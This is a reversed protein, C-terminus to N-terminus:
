KMNELQKFPDANKSGPSSLQFQSFSTNGVFNSNPPVNQFAKLEFMQRRLVEIDYEMKQAALQMNEKERLVNDLDASIRVLEDGQLRSTLQVSDREKTLNERETTLAFIEAKLSTITEEQSEVKERLSSTGTGSSREPSNAPYLLSCQTTLEFNSERLLLVETQSSEVLEMLGTVKSTCSDVLKKDEDHQKQLSEVEAQLREILAADHEAVTKAVARERNFRDELAAITENPQSQLLKQYEIAENDRLLQLQLVEAELEQIKRKSYEEQERLALIDINRDGYSNVSSADTDNLEEGSLHPEKSQKSNLYFVQMKLDFNSRKLAAIEEMMDGLNASEQMEMALLIIDSQVFL